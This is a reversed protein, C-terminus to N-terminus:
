HHSFFHWGGLSAPNGTDDALLDRYNAASKRFAEAYEQLIAPRYHKFWPVSYTRAPVNETVPRSGCTAALIPLARPNATAM